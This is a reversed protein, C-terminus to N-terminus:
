RVRPARGEIHLTESGADVIGLVVSRLAGTVRFAQGVPSASTDSSAATNPYTSIRSTYPDANRHWHCKSYSNTDWKSNCNSDRNAYGHCKSNGNSHCNGDRNANRHCNSNSDGNGHCNGDRNAHTNANPFRSFRQGRWDYRHRL